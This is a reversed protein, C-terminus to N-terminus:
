SLNPGDLAMGDDATGGGGNTKSYDIETLRPTQWSSKVISKPDNAEIKSSINQKM